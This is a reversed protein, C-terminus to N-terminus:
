DGTNAADMRPMEEAVLKQLTKRADMRAKVVEPNWPCDIAVSLTAVARDMLCGSRYGTAKMTAFNVMWYDAAVETSALTVRARKRGRTAAQLVVRADPKDLRVMKMSNYNTFLVKVEDQQITTEEGEKLVIKIERRYGTMLNVQEMRELDIKYPTGNPYKASTFAAELQDDAEGGQKKGGARKSSELKSKALKIRLAIDPEYQVWKKHNDLWWVGPKTPYARSKNSALVKVEDPKITTQEGEKLVIKIERRYGSRVNVQHMRELDIKYPMGNPYKTSNHFGIEVDKAEGGQKKGDAPNSSSSDLKSKALKISLAIDPPYQVWQDDERWWVGPETPDACEKTICM